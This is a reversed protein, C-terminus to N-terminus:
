CEFPVYKKSYRIWKKIDKGLEQDPLLNNLYFMVTSELDFVFSRFWPQMMLNFGTNGPKSKHYPRPLVCHKGNDLIFMPYQTAM